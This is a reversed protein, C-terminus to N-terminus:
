KANKNKNPNFMAALETVTRFANISVVEAPSVFKIERCENSAVFNLDQVKISYVLNITWKGEMNKGILHYSPFSDVQTLILGMEEYIERALCDQPSEGWNLGGGPLEWWGNDELIVLFKTRNENLILAKISGRYFGNPIKTQM